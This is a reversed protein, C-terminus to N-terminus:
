PATTKIIAAAREGAIASTCCLGRPGPAYKKAFMAAATVLEVAGAAAGTDGLSDAAHYLPTDERRRRLLRAMMLSQEKFAYSEGTLDSVRFEMDHMPLQAEALAQRVAQAIGLGIFPEESLITATEQAFGLGIVQLPAAVPTRGERQVLVAAAGEGPIVGNPNNPTKLRQQGELWALAPGNIYSDVGAVLCAPASAPLVQARAFRLAAFAGTHGQPFCRSLAPHFRVGLLAQVDKLLQDGRNGIGGPREPEAVAVLLPTAEPRLGSAQSLCDALAGALLKVLRRLGVANEPVQTGIVPANDGDVFALETFASIGARLAACAATAYLGAGCVMGTAGVYM